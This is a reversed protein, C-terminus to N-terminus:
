FIGELSKLNIKEEVLRKIVEGHCSKPKCFCVLNVDGKIAESYIRNLQECIRTDRQQVKELLYQEYNSIAEDRSACHYQAKTNELERHTFPNGLASGRGIYVDNPKPKCKHKNVVFIPM